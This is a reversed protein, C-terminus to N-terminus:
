IYQIFMKKSKEKKALYVARMLGEVIHGEKSFIRVRTFRADDKTFEFQISRLSNILDEDDLLHVEGKEMLSKLTDYLDEKFIRQKVNGERDMSMARNNMAVVKRKTDTDDLLHDFIGVGLSGSGADIGIKLCNYSIAFRKINKLTETTLTKRTTQNEIQKIIDGSANVIEFSSLDDGMRAIDCGIYNDNKPSPVRRKLICCKNIIDDDFFRRLDELFSGCYEQQFVLTSMDEREAELYSISHKKQMETWTDCIERNRVVEESSIHWVKFRNHKNLFSEYFYGQKGHPTSCIWIQGATTLLVPRAANFALEPM